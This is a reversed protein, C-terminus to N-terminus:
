NTYYKNILKVTFFTSVLVKKVLHYFNIDGNYYGENDLFTLIDGKFYAISKSGM